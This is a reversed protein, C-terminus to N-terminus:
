KSITKVQCCLQGKLSRKIIANIKTGLKMVFEKQGGKERAFFYNDQIIVESSHTAGLRVSLFCLLKFFM